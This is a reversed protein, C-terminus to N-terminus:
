AVVGANRAKPGRTMVSIAIAKNQTRVTQCNGSIHREVLRLVTNRNPRVNAPASSDFNEEPNNNTTKGLERLRVRDSGAAVLQMYEVIKDWRILKNDAGVKFGIFQDPPLLSAAAKM